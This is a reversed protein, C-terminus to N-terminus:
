RSEGHKAWEKWDKLMAAQVQSAISADDTLISAERNGTLASGTINHSGVIVREGDFVWAKRHMTPGLFLKQVKWGAGVLAGVAREVGAAHEPPWQCIDLM